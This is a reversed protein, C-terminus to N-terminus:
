FIKVESSSDKKQRTHLFPCLLQKGYDRVKEAEGQRAKLGHKTQTHLRLRTPMKTKLHKESMNAERWRSEGFGNEEAICM